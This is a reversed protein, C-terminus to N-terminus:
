GHRSEVRGGVLELHWRNGDQTRPAILAELMPSKLTTKRRLSEDRLRIFHRARCRDAAAHYRRVCRRAPHVVRRDFAARANPDRPWPSICDDDATHRTMSLSCAIQVGLSRGTAITPEHGSAAGRSGFSDDGFRVSPVVALDPRTTRFESCSTKSPMRRPQIGQGSRANAM